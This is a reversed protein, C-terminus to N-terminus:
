SRKAEQGEAVADALVTAFMDQYAGGAPAASEPLAAAVMQKAVQRLMLQEVGEQVSTVAESM